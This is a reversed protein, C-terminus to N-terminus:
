EWELAGKKWIYVYGILLIFIFFMMIIFGYLKLSDAVVAWPYLFMIEIDFILFLMAVLYYRINIRRRAPGEPRMGCEYPDLKSKKNIRHGLFHSATIILTGIFLALGVTILIGLYEQM